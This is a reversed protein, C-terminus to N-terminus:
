KRVMPIYITVQQDAPEAAAPSDGNGAAYCGGGVIMVGLLAVAGRRLWRQVFAQHRAENILAQLAKKERPIDPLDLIQM